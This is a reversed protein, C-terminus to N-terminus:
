TPFVSEIKNKITGTEKAGCVVVDRGCVVVDRGCAVVVVDRGRWWELGLSM